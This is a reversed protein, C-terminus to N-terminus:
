RPLEGRLGKLRQVAQTFVRGRHGYNDFMDFSSCAPSMLVSDGPWAGQAAMEVAEDMSAAYCIPVTEQLAAAIKDAAEGILVLKRVKEIVAERLLSYNDGKDRGGAILVINGDLQRLASLVAGTNTAKSDDYFCVGDIEGVRALRHPGPKFRALGKRIDEPRCGVARVALIAAASNLVGTNGALETGALPYIEEAGDLNLVVADQGTRAQCDSGQGFFLSPQKLEAAMKRCLPDDGGLIATDGPRQHLFIRKKAAAYGDMDGHRDLHDPTINLLLAVDPRFSDATELQFSSVELVVADVAKGNVLHEFLPVGINGGVFVKKGAQQLLEGILSTVTTKGNTGTIAIVRADLAPGAIALEGLVPIRRKKVEQLVPLDFPIGPSLMIMDAQGLLDISHGGSELSVGSTELFDLDEKKMKARDRADSVSVRAGCGLLYRVAARGSIGLGMVVVHMGKRIRDNKLM